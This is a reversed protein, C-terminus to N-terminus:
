RLIYLYEAGCRFDDCVHFLTRLNDYLAVDPAAARIQEVYRYDFGALHPTFIDQWLPWEAREYMLTEYGALTGTATELTLNCKLGNAWEAILEISSDKKPDVGARPELRPPWAHWVNCLVTFTAFLLKYREDYPPLLRFTCPVCSDAIVPSDVILDTDFEQQFRLRARVQDELSLFIRQAPDYREGDFLYGATDFMDFPVRDVPKFHLANWVRTKHDM